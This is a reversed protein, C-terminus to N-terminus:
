KDEHNVEKLEKKINELRKILSLIEIGHDNKRKKLSNIQAQIFEPTSTCLGGEIALCLFHIEEKNLM